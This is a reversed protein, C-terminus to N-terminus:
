SNITNKKILINLHLLYHLRKLLGEQIVIHVHPTSLILMSLTIDFSNGIDM